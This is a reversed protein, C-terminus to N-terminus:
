SLLIGAYFLGRKNEESVRKFAGQNTEIPCKYSEVHM